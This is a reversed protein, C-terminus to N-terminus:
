FSVGFNVSQTKISNNRLHNRLLLENCWINEEKIVQNYLPEMSWYLSSWVNMVYNSGMAFWDSIMNLPQNLNEYYFCNPDINFDVKIKPSVDYRLKIVVDYKIKTQLSYAEKLANVRYNSYWQSHSINVIYQEFFSIGNPDNLGYDFCRKINEESVKINPNTWKKPLEFLCSKPEYIDTLIKDINKQAKKDWYGPCRKYFNLDEPDHWAHMFVDVNNGEIITKKIRNATDVANRPQGSLCLAIKM